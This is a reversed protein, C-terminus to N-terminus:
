LFLRQAPSDDFDLRKRKGVFRKKGRPATPTVCDAVKIHPPTEAAASLELASQPLFTQCLSLTQAHEAFPDGHPYLVVFACPSLPRGPSELELSLPLSEDAHLSSM